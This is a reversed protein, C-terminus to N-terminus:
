AARRVGYRKVLAMVTTHDNGFLRGIRPYSWGLAHLYAAFKGRAEPGPPERTFMETVTLHFERAIGEAVTLLDRERLREIIGM